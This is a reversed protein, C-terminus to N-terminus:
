LRGRIATELGQYKLRLMENTINHLIANTNLDSMQKEVFRNNGDQFLINNNEIYAPHATFAGDRQWRYHKTPEPELAAGVGASDRKEIAKTLAKFFEAAPLDKMKYGVTDFNAINDVLVEHRAETFRAVQELVPLAGRNVLSDIFM